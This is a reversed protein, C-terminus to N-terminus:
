AFPNNRYARLDDATLTDPPVLRYHREQTIVIGEESEEFGFLAIIGDALFQAGIALRICEPFKAACLALDQEIQVISMRDRGGKAQVPFVYHAGRRDVGVYVEDTEVQTNGMGPVTTRLHNQLSYCVVGTFLDILRNYRVRALLAQEDAVSYMAVIGPTADPVRITALLPNPEIVVTRMLSMRYLGKGRFRIAWTMGEPAKAAISEPLAVRFRFSYLVDGLNKPDPVGLDRAATVFEERAFEVETAGEVYHAFFVRELIRAYRNPEKGRGTERKV